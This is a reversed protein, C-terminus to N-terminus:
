DSTAEHYDHYSELLNRPLDDPEDDSQQYYAFRDYKSHRNCGVILISGPPPKLWAKAKRSLSRATQADVKALTIVTSRGFYVRIVEGQKLTVGSIPDSIQLPQKRRSM